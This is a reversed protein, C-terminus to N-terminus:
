RSARVGVRLSIGPAPFGIAEQYDADFLNEIALFYRQRGRARWTMTVNARTYPNLVVEGTPISSDFMRGVYLVDFNVSVTAHPRWQVGIGGRWEPRNLLPEDTGRINTKVYALQASITTDARPNVALGMEFGRATVESRNVLRPPPGEALDVLNEFKSSFLAMDVTARGGQLPVRLGLEASRTSEPLLGPNGVIPNGLAFFSPLKFGEGWSARLTVGNVPVRYAFAVRPSVESDFGDPFDARVGGRLLLGRKVIYAAEIIAGWNNRRLDFSTPTTVGGILLSGVSSGIESEVEAGVSLRLADQRLITYRFKLDARSYQNATITPPIGVPDRVGPAVGPSVIDSRQDYLGLRVTYDSTASQQRFFEIGLSLQDVDRKETERRVAFQPGGSAEPFSELDSSAYRLTSRMEMRDSLVRGVNANFVTGRFGSGEVPDGNDTASASLAYDTVGTSDSFNALVRGFGFSGATGELSKVPKDGRRTIINIVGSMATSGYVDSVPGRVIEIREISDLDLTSFDVSGGRNNTPDNLALGDLLVLTFNPDGGRLYASSVSGRAGPQDIHLGPVQRLLETVTRPQSAEIQARTILTVSAATEELPGPGVTATVVIPAVDQDAEDTNENRALIETSGVLALVPILRRSLSGLSLSAKTAILRTTWRAGRAYPCRCSTSGGGLKDPIVALYEHVVPKRQRM